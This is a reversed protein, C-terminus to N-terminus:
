QCKVRDLHFGLEKETLGMKEMIARRAKALPNLLRWGRSDSGTGIKGMERLSGGKGMRKARMFDGPKVGIESAAILATLARFLEGDTTEADSARLRRMSIYNKLDDFSNEILGKRRRMPLIEINDLTSGSLARFCGRYEGLRGIKRMDRTLSFSGDSSSAATLRSAREKAEILTLARKRALRAEQGEIARCLVGTKSRALDQDYRMRAAPTPSYLAGKSAIRIWAAFGAATPSM